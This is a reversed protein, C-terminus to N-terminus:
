EGLEFLFKKLRVVGYNFFNTLEGSHLVSNGPQWYGQKRGMEIDYTANGGSNDTWSVDRYHNYFSDVNLDTPM